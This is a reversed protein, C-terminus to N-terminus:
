AKSLHVQVKHNPSIGKFPINQEVWRLSILSNNKKFQILPLNLIHIHNNNM